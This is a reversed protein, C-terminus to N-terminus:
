SFCTNIPDRNRAMRPAPSVTALLVPQSWAKMTTPTVILSCLCGPDRRLTLHGHSWLLKVLMEQANADSMPNCAGRANVSKTETTIKDDDGNYLYPFQPM